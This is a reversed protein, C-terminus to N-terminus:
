YQSSKRKRGSFYKRLQLKTKKPVFIFFKSRAFIVVDYVRNLAAILRSQRIAMPAKLRPIFQSYNLETGDLIAHQSAQFHLGSGDLGINRLLSKRPYIHLKNARSTLVMLRADWGGVRGEEFLAITYKVHLGYTFPINSAREFPNRFPELDSRFEKWRDAWTAWGWFARVRNHLVVDSRTCVAAITNLFGNLPSMTGISFISREQQFTRLAWDVYAYAEPKVICDDELIFAQDVSSFVEDLGDIVNKPTTFNYPRLTVKKNKHPFAYAIEVTEKVAKEHSANKAGDCYIWLTQTYTLNISELCLRLKDPRNYCFVVVNM